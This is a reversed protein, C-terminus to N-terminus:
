EGENRNLDTSYTPSAVVMALGPWVYLQQQLLVIAVFTNPLATGGIGFSMDWLMSVLFLKQLVRSRRVIRFGDLVGLSVRSAVLAMLLWMLGAATQSSLMVWRRNFRDAIWGALPSVMASLGLNALM